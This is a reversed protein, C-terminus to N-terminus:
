DAADYWGDVVSAWVGHYFAEHLQPVAVWLDECTMGAQQALYGARYGASWGAAENGGATESVGLRAAAIALRARRAQTAPAAPNQM